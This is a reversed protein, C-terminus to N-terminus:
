AGPAIPSLSLNSLAPHTRESGPGPVSPPNPYGGLGGLAAQLSRADLACSHPFLCLFSPLGNSPLTRAGHSGRLSVPCQVPVPAVWPSPPAEQGVAAAAAFVEQSTSVAGTAPQLGQGWPDLWRLPTQM